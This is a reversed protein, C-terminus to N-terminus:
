GATTALGEIDILDKWAVPVGDLPGLPQGARYRAASKAAERRAREFCTSTFVGPNAGTEIREVFYDTLERADLKRDHLLRGLEAATLAAFRASSTTTM